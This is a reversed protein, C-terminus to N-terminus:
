DLLQFDSSWAIFFDSCFIAEDTILANTTISTPENKTGTHIVSIEMKCIQMHNWFNLYLDIFDFIIIFRANSITLNLGPTEKSLSPNWECYFWFSKKFFFQNRVSPTWVHTSSNLNSNQFLKPGDKIGKMRLIFFVNGM